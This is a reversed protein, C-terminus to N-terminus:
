ADTFEVDIINEPNSRATDNLSTDAWEASVLTESKMFQKVFTVPNIPMKAPLDANKERIKEWYEQLLFCLNEETVWKETHYKEFVEANTM